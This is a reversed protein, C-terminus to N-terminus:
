RQPALPGSQLDATVNARGGRTLDEVKGYVTLQPTTYEEKTLAVMVRESNNM